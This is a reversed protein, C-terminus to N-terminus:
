QAPRLRGRIMDGSDRDYIVLVDGSIGAPQCELDGPEGICLQGEGVAWAGEFGLPITITIPGDRVVARDAGVPEGILEGNAKFTMNFAEPEGPDVGGDPRLQVTQGSLRSRLEGATTEPVPPACGAIIGVAALAFPSRPM